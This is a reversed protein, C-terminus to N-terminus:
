YEAAQRRRDERGCTHSTSMRIPCVRTPTHSSVPSSMLQWLEMHWRPRQEEPASAPLAASPPHRSCPQRQEAQGETRHALPEFLMQQDPWVTKRGHQLRVSQM